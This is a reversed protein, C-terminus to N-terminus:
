RGAHAYPPTASYYDVRKGGGASHLRRLSRPGHVHQRGSPHYGLLAPKLLPKRSSRSANQFWNNAAARVRLEGSAFNSSVADSKLITWTLGQVDSQNFSRQHYPLKGVPDQFLCPLFPRAEPSPASSRLQSTSAQRRPMPETSCGMSPTRSSV